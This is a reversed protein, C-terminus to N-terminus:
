HLFDRASRVMTLWLSSPISYTCSPSRYQYLRQLFYFFETRNWAHRWMFTHEGNIQANTHIQPPLRLMEPVYFPLYPPSSLSGLTRPSMDSGLASVTRNLGQETALDTCSRTKGTLLPM